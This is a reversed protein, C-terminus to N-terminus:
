SEEARRNFALSDAHQFRLRPVDQRLLVGLLKSRGKVRGRSRGRAGQIRGPVIPPANYM